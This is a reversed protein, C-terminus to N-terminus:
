KKGRIITEGREIAKAGMEMDFQRQEQRMFEVWPLTHVIGRAVESNYQALAAFRYPKYQKRGFM